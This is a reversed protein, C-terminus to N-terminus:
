LIVKALLCLWVGAKSSRRIGLLAAAATKCPGCGNAGATEGLEQGKVLELGQAMASLLLMEKGLFIAPATLSTPLSPSGQSNRLLVPPNGLGLVAFCGMLTSLM